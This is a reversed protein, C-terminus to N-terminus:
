RRLDPDFTHSAPREFSNQAVRCMEKLENRIGKGSLHDEIAARTFGDQRLARALDTMGHCDGSRALEFAREIVGANRM